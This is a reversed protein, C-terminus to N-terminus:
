SDSRHRRIRITLFVLAVAIAVGIWLDTRGLMPLANVAEIMGDVTENGGPFTNPGAALRLLLLDRLSWSDFFLKQGIVLAIPPLLTWVFVVRPVTVSVLLQYAAVPAFWLALVFVDLLLYGNLKLWMIATSHKSAEIGPGFGVAVKFMLFAVLNTVLALAYVVLPVAVLAVFLKSLVTKTDSVPLSKWFLITRDKRETFLCDCLYFFGVLAMLGYLIGTFVLSMGFYFGPVMPNLDMPAGGVAVGDLTFRTAAFVCFVLYCVCLVLPALWLVRHEWFERRILIAMVKM